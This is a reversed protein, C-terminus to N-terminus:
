LSRTLVVVCCWLRVGERESGSCVSVVVVVDVVLLVPRPAPPDSPREEDVVLGLVISGNCRAHPATARLMAPLQVRYAKRSLEGSGMDCREECSRAM